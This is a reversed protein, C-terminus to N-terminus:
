RRHHFRHTPSLPHASSVSGSTWSNPDRVPSVKPTCTTSTPIAVQVALPIPRVCSGQACGEEVIAEATSSAVLQHAHVVVLVAQPSGDHDSGGVEAWGVAGEWVISPSPTIRGWMVFRRGQSCYDMSSRLGKVESQDQRVGQSREQDHFQFAPDCAPLSSPDPEGDVAVGVEVQHQDGVNSSSSIHVRHGDFPGPGPPLGHGPVPALVPLAVAVEIALGEGELDGGAVSARQDGVIHNRCAPGESLGEATALEALVM